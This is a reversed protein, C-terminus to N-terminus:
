LKPNLTYTVPLLCATHAMACRKVSSVAEADSYTINDLLATAHQLYV